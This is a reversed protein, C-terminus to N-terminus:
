IRKGHVKKRMRIHEASNIFIVHPLEYHHLGCEKSLDKGNIINWDLYKSKIYSNFRKKTAHFVFLGNESNEIITIM